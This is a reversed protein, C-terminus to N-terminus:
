DCSSMCHSVTDSCVITVYTFSRAIVTLPPTPRCRGPSSTKRLVLKRTWGAQSPLMMKRAEYKKWGFGPLKVHRPFDKEGAHLVPISPAAGAALLAMEPSPSIGGVGKRPRRGSPFALNLM